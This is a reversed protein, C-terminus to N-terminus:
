DLSNMRRWFIKNTKHCILYSQVNACEQFTSFTSINRSFAKLVSMFLLVTTEREQIKTFLLLIKLPYCIRGGHYQLKGQNKRHNFNSGPDPSTFSFIINSTTTITEVEETLEILVADPNGGMRQMMSLISFHISLITHM